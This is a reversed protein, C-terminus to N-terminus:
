AAGPNAVDPNDSSALGPVILYLRNPENPLIAAAAGVPEAPTRSGPALAASEPVAAPGNPENPLKAPPAPEIPDPEPEAPAG